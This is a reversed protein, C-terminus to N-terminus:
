KNGFLSFKAMGDAIKVTWPGPTLKLYTLLDEWQEATMPSKIGFDADPLPTVIEVKDPDVQLREKAARKVFYLIQGPALNFMETMNKVFKGAISM